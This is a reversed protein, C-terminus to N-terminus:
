GKWQFVVYIVRTKAINLVNNFKCNSTTSCVFYTYKIFSCVISSLFIFNEASRTKNVSSVRWQFSWKRYLISYSIVALHVTIVIWQSGKFFSYFIKRVVAEKFTPDWINESTIPIVRPETKVGMRQWDLKYKMVFRFQCTFYSINVMMMVCLKRM